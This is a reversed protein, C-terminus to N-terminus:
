IYQSMFEECFEECIFLRRLGIRYRWRYYTIHTIFCNWSSWSSFFLSCRDSKTVFWCCSLTIFSFVSLAGITMGGAYALAGGIVRGAHGAIKIVPEGIANVSYGAAYGLIGGVGKAIAYCAGVAGGAIGSSIVGGAIAISSGSIIVSRSLVEWVAEVPAAIVLATAGIITKGGSMRASFANWVGYGIKFCPSIVAAALMQRSSINQEM